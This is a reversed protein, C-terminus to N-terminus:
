IILTFDLCHCSRCTKIEFVTDEILAGSAFIRVEAAGLFYFWLGYSSVGWYNLRLKPAGLTEGLHQADALRFTVFHDVASIKDVILTLEATFHGDVCGLFFIYLLFLTMICDSVQAYVAIM